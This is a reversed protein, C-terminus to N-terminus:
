KSQHVAKKQHKVPIISTIFKELEIHRKLSVKINAPKQESAKLEEFTSYRKVSKMRKYQKIFICFTTKLRVPSLRQVM